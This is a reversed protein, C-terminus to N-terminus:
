MRGENECLDWCCENWLVWGKRECFLCKRGYQVLKYLKHSSITYVFSHQRPYTLRFSLSNALKQNYINM